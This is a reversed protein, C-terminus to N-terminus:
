NPLVSSHHHKILPQDASHDFCFTFRASAITENNFTFTYIGSIIAHQSSDIPQIHYENITCKPNKQLFSTFYEQIHNNTTCIQNSLTPLLIAQPHYLDLISTLQLSEVANIWNILAQKTKNTSM